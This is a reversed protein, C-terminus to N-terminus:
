LTLTSEFLFIRRRRLSARPNHHLVNEFLWLREAGPRRGLAGIGGIRYTYRANRIKDLFLRERGNSTEDQSRNSEAVGIEAAPSRASQILGHRLTWTTSFSPNAPAIRVRSADEVTEFFFGWSVTLQPRNLNLM